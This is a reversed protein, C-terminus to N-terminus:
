HVRLPNSLHVAETNQNDQGDQDPEEETLVLYIERGHTIIALAVEVTILAIIILEM